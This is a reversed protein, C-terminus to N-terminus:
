KPSCVLDQNEDSNTVDNFLTEWSESYSEPRPYSDNAQFAPISELRVPVVENSQINMGAFAAEGKGLDVHNGQNTKMNVHGDYVSVYLGPETERMSSQTFMKADVDVKDPRPAPTSKMFIPIAPMMVPLVNQNALFATQNTKLVQSGATNTLDIAGDWVHAYMGDGAFVAVAPKIFANLIKELPSIIAQPQAVCDGECHVEYGTGRIGITAVPTNMKYANKNRKGILGSVARFGGRLLTMFSTNFSPRKADYHHSKIEFVSNSKLTIRSKDKFAMVAFSALGTKLKDGEYLPGGTFLQRTKKHSDTASLQGRMFAIRGIVYETAVNDKKGYRKGDKSCDDSCLRADFETGRIGITAVPTRIKYADKNRKSIFGTLARIGGKFLNLVAGDSRSNRAIYKEIGLSSNPRLTIKTGDVMKVIAFSRNATTVVDEEFVKAGKGLIRVGQSSHQATVAGRVYDVNGVLTEALISLPSVICMILFVYKIKLIHQNNITQKKM